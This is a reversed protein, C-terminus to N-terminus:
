CDSIELHSLTVTKKPFFCLSYSFFVSFPLVDRLVKMWGDGVMGLLFLWGVGGMEGGILMYRQVYICMGGRTYVFAAGCIYTGVAHMYM